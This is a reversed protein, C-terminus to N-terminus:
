KKKRWPFLPTRNRWRESRADAAEKREEIIKPLNITRVILFILVLIVIAIIAYMM